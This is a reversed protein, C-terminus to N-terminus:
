TNTTFLIIISFLVIYLTFSCQCENQHEALTVKAMKVEDINESCEEFLKDVLRKQM